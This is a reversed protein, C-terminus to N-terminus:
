VKIIEGIPVYSFEAAGKQKSMPSVAITLRYRGEPFSDPLDM